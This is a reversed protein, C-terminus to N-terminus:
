ASYMHDSEPGADRLETYAKAGFYTGDAQRGYIGCTLVVLLYHISSVVRHALDECACHPQAAHPISSARKATACREHQNLLRAAGVRWLAARM